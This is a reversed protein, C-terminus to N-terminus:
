LRHTSDNSVYSRTVGHLEQQGAQAPQFVAAVVAGADGRRPRRPRKGDALGHSLDLFQRLAERVTGHLGVDADAMGAPGRVTRRRDVIGMGVHPPIGRHRDYVVAHDFVILLDPLRQLRFAIPKRGGGIGFRDRVQNIAAQLPPQSVRVGAQLGGRRNEDLGDLRGEGLKAASVPQRNEEAVGGLGDDGRSQAARQDDAHAAALVKQGAIRGRQRAEGISNDVQGVVLQRHQGCVRQLHELLVHDADRVLHLHDVQRRGVDVAAAVRVVHELFDELLGVREAIRHAPPQAFDVGRRDEPSEVQGRLLKPGHPPEDQGGAPRTPM